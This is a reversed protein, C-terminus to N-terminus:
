ELLQILKNFFEQWTKFQTDPISIGLKDELEDLIDAYDLTDTTNGDIRKALFERFEDSNELASKKVISRDYSAVVTVLVRRAIQSNVEAM